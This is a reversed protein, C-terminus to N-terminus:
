AHRGFREAKPRDPLPDDPQRNAPRQPVIAMGPLHSREGSWPGAPGRDSRRARLCHVRLERALRPFTALSGGADEGDSLGAGLM